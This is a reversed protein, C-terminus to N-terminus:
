QDRAYGSALLEQIEQEAAALRPLFDAELTELRDALVACLAIKKPVSPHSRVERILEANSYNSYSM